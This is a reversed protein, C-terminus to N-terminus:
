RSSALLSDPKSRSNKAAWNFEHNIWDQNPAAIIERQWFEERIRSDQNPAAIIERQWFEEAHAAWLGGTAVAALVMLIQKM